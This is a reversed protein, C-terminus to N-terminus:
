RFKKRYFSAILMFVLGIVIYILGPTLQPLLSDLFITIGFAILVFGAIMINMSTVYNKWRKRLSNEVDEEVSSLLSSFFDPIYKNFINKVGSKKKAM